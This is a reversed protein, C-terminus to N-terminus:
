VMSDLYRKEYLGKGLERVRRCQDADREIKHAAEGGSHMVFQFEPKTQCKSFIFNWFWAM